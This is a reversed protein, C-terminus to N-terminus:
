KSVIAAFFSIKATYFNYSDAFCQQQYIFCVTKGDPNSTADQLLRSYWVNNEAKKLWDQVTRRKCNSYGAVNDVFHQHVATSSIPAHDKQYQVVKLTQAKTARWRRAKKLKKLLKTSVKKSDTM